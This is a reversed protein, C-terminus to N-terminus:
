PSPVTRLSSQVSCAASDRKRRRVAQVARLEALLLVLADIALAVIRVPVPVVVHHFYRHGPRHIRRRSHDRIQAIQIGEHLAFHDLREIMFIQVFLHRCKASHTGVVSFIQM